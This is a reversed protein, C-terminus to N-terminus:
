ATPYYWGFAACWIRGGSLSSSTSHNVIYRVRQSDKLLIGGRYIQYPTELTGLQVTVNGLDRAWRLGVRIRWTLDGSGNVFGTGTYGHTISTIVGDFGQPVTFSLVTTDIGNAAPLPITHILQFPQANSPMVMHPPQRYSNRKPFCATIIGGKAQAEQYLSGIAWASRDYQNPQPVYHEQIM